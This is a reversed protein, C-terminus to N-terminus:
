MGQEALTKRICGLLLGSARAIKKYIVKITIGAREAIEHVSLNENFRLQIITRDLQSLQPLCKHLAEIRHDISRISQTVEQELLKEIDEEFYLRSRCKKKRYNRVVNYAIGIGWAGFDMNARFSGFKEWMVSLTDQFIDDAEAQNPVLVYIYAYIRRDNEFLLRMFVATNDNQKNLSGQEPM